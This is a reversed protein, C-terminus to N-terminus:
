VIHQSVPEHPSKVAQVLGKEILKAELLKWNPALYVGPVDTLARNYESHLGFGRRAQQQNDSGWKHKWHFDYVFQVLTKPRDDILYQCHSMFPRKDKTTCVLEVRGKQFTDSPFDNMSLWSSTPGISDERRNSIYMINHGSDFINWLVDRAGPYPSQMWIMEDTHCKEIIELWVELGMHDTPSRWEPWPAYAAARLVKDGTHAAEDCIVQRALQGFSYLTDDIDCAFTAM